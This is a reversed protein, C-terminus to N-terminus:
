HGLHPLAVTGIQLLFALLGVAFAYLAPAAANPHKDRPVILYILLGLICVIISLVYNPM